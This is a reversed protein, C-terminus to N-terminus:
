RGTSTAPASPRRLWGSRRGASRPRTCTTTARATAARTSSGPSALGPSPSRACARAPARATPTAPRRAASSLAARPACTGSSSRRAAPQRGRGRLRRAPRGDRAVRDLGEHEQRTPRRGRGPARPRARRRAARNVPGHRAIMAGAARFIGSTETLLGHLELETLAAAARRRRRPRARSRARRGVAARRAAPRAGGGAPATLDPPAPPEPALGFADLVDAASTAVAAGLKILANTGASLASTIEGPVVFGGAGGRRRPRGHDARREERTGRDRGHGARPRRRDPQPGPLAM